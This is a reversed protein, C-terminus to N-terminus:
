FYHIAPKRNTKKAKTLIVFTADLLEPECGQGTGSRAKAWGAFAQLM